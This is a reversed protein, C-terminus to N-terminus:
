SCGRNVSSEDLIATMRRFESYNDTTVHDHRIVHMEKETEAAVARDCQALPDFPHLAL